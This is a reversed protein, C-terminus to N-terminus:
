FINQIKEFCFNQDMKYFRRFNERINERQFTREFCFKQCVKYFPRFMKYEGLVSTRAWKLFFLFNRYEKLVFIRTCKIFFRLM